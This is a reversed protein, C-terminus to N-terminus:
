LSRDPFICKTKWCIIHNKPLFIEPFYVNDAPPHFPKKYAANLTNIKEECKLYNVIFCNVKSETTKSINYLESL